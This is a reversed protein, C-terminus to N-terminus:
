IRKIWYSPHRRLHMVAVVVVKDDDIKYLLAYPFRHLLRRRVGEGIIPWQFPNSLTDELAIEIKHLFDKGLYESQSEYYMAANIMEDEAAQLFIVSKM